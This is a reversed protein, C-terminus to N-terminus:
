RYRDTEFHTCVRVDLLSVRTSKAPSKGQVFEEEEEDEEDEDEEDEDEEDEDEEDDEGDDDVWGGRVDAEERDLREALARVERESPESKLSKFVKVYAAARARQEKSVQDKWEKSGVAPGTTSAAKGKGKGKGKASRAEDEERQMKAALARVEADSPQRDINLIGQIATSMTAARARIEESLKDNNDDSRDDAM